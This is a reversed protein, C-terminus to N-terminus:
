VGQALTSRDCVDIRAQVVMLQMSGRLVVFGFRKDKQIIEDMNHEILHFMPGVALPLFMYEDRFYMIQLMM